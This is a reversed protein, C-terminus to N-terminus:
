RPAKGYIYEALTLVRGTGGDRTTEHVEGRNFRSLVMYANLSSPYMGWKNHAAVTLLGKSDPYMITIGNHHKLHLTRLIKM